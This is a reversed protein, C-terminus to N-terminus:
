PLDVAVHHNTVITELLMDKYEVTPLSFLFFIGATLALPTTAEFHGQGLKWHPMNRFPDKYTEIPFRQNGQVKSNYECPTGNVKFPMSGEEKGKASQTGIKGYNGKVTWYEHCDSVLSVVNPTPLQNWSM